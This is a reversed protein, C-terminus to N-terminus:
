RFLRFDTPFNSFMRVPESDTLSVTAVVHLDRTVDM